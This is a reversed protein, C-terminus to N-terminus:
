RKTPTVVHGNMLVVIQLEEGKGISTESPYCDFVYVWQSPASVLQLRVNICGWEASILAMDSAKSLALSMARRMPLPPPSDMEEKWAPAKEILSRTVVSHYAVGRFNSKIIALVDAAMVPAASLLFVVYYAIARNM